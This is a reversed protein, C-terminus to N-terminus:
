FFNPGPEFTSIDGVLSRVDSLEEAVETVSPSSQVLVLRVIELYGLFIEKESFTLGGDSSYSFRYTSVNQNDNHRMVIVAGSIKLCDGNFHEQEGNFDILLDLGKPTIKAGNESLGIITVLDLIDFEMEVGLQLVMDKTLKEVRDGLLVIAGDVVKFRFSCKM